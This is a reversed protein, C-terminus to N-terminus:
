LYVFEPTNTICMPIESNKKFGLQKLSKAYKFSNEFMQKYSIKNGRYFIAIKDMNNINRDFIEVAWSHNRNTDIDDLAKKVKKLFKDSYKYPKM